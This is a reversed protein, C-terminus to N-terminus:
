VTAGSGKAEQPVCVCDLGDSSVTEAAYLVELDKASIRRDMWSMVTTWIAMTTGIGIM